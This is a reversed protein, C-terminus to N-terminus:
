KVSDSKDAERLAWKIGYLGDMSCNENIRAAKGNKGVAWREAMIPHSNRCTIAEKQTDHLGNCTPCRYWTEIHAM